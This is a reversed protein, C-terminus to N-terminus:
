VPQNYALAEEREGSDTEKWGQNENTRFFVESKASYGGFKVSSSSEFGEKCYAGRVEILRLALMRGGDKKMLSRLWADGDKNIPM